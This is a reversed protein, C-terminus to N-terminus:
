APPAGRDRPKWGVLQHGSTLDWKLEGGQSAGYIIAFQAEADQLCCATLEAMDRSSLWRNMGPEYDSNVQDTNPFNAIRICYCAIGYRDFYFRGMAEGCAKSVGYMSDPRVPLDPSSVMNQKEYFGTVHNTSAFVVKPVRNIRASEFINYTGKLNTDFIKQNYRARTAGRGAVAIGLHVIADVGDGAEVMCEFDALDAVVVQDESEVEPVNRHFLLRFDYRDRLYRRLASGVLGAAGTILIRPRTSM